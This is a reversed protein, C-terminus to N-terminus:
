PSRIVHLNSPTKSSFVNLSPNIATAVKIQEVKKKQRQKIAMANSRRNANKSLTYKQKMYIKKKNNRKKITSGIAFRVKKFVDKPGVSASVNSLISDKISYKSLERPSEREEPNKQRLFGNLEKFQAVLSSVDIPTDPTEFLFTVYIHKMKEFFLLEEPKLDDYNNYFDELIPSYSIVFGWVDLNKLFVESFYPIMKMEGNVTYKMLIKSIYEVIYYYTYEFEIIYDREKQNVATITHGFLFQMLGKIVKFHGMGREEMWIVVFDVVFSRIQYYSPEPTKELFKDYLESFTTNFLVISFPVNYQFPRHFLTKPIRERKEPLYEASLGWDILRTKMDKDEEIKVLINSEKIDCHYINRHNMPVIGNELLHLLTDNLQIIDENTNHEEFYDGVDIGGNPMNLAMLKDLNANINEHTIDNKKLATCKKQYDQLDEETLIDPKCVSIGDLLFYDQYNPITSLADKFKVIDTFEQDTHKVTMLKTINDPQRSEGQCKLAPKFVCGYGGSAIVSGGKLERRKSKNNTNKNKYMKTTKTTM